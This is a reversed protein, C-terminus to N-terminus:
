KRHLHPLPTSNLIQQKLPEYKGTYFKSDRSVLAKILQYVVSVNVANGLQKYSASSSQKGFEFWDPFGQLRACERVSLRRKEPMYITTQNIAVLTPVYSAKKVRIGSPRFHLICEYMSEATNAQWELKQRTPPFDRVDKSLWKSLILENDKYFKVNKDIFEKKWEPDTDMKKFPANLGWYQSWLPFGPIPVQNSRLLQVFDDWKKIWREEESTLRLSALDEASLEELPLDRKLDWNEPKWDKSLHSLDLQNIDQDLKSLNVKGVHTAAIFLRERLQPTGGFKPHIRHPSLILPDSNVIYGERKLIEIIRDFTPRHKPGVLNRVNELVIIKPHHKIIIQEINWFLTGRSESEGRQFGSKSFPQCPFGGTLIQHQPIKMLTDTALQTLDGSPQLGWNLEYTSSANSEFESAFIVECGLASLAAHFGGIGAFLDVTKFPM